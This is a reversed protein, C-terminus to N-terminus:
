HCDGGNCDVTCTAGEACAQTCNGGNCTIACTAGAECSQSCSGGNCDFTCAAGAPCAQNCSGENCDLVIAAGTPAVAMDPGSMSNNPTTNATNAPTGSVFCGAMCLSAFLGLALVKM